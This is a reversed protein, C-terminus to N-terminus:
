KLLAGASLSTVLVVTLLTMTTDLRADVGGRLLDVPDHGFAAIWALWAEGVNLCEDLDIGAGLVGIAAGEGRAVEDTGCQEVDVTKGVAYPAVPADFAHVPEQIDLELVIQRAVSGAVTGFVHGDDSAEGEAEYAGVLGLSADFGTSLAGAPVRFEQEFDELEFPWPVRHLDYLRGNSGSTELFYRGASGTAAVRDM